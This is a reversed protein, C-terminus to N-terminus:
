LVCFLPPKPFPGSYLLRKLLSSGRAEDGVLFLRQADPATAFTLTTKISQGSDLISDFPMVSSDQILPFHRGREDLVYLSVGKPSVKVHNGDSFIHVDVKYFTGSDQTQSDVRDIGICWIDFCYSSGMNVITQPTLLSVTAVALIYVVTGALTALVTRAAIRFKRFALSLLAALLAVADGFVVIFPMMVGIFSDSHLVM